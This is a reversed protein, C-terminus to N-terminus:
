WEWRMTYDEYLHPKNMKWSVQWRGDPLQTLHDQGLSTEIGRNVEVMSMKLPPRNLPFIVNIKLKKTRHSVSTTWEEVKRTFTSKMDWEIIINEKDGRNRIKRLSILTLTRHGLRYRDVSKGPSCRFAKLIKGDGWAQDHYAIVNNQLYRVEQQKRYTANKGKTDHLVLQMEYNMVEYIGESTMGNLLKRSHKWIDTLIEIWPLGFVIATLKSPVSHKNM